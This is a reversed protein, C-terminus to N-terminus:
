VQKLQSIERDKRDIRLMLIAKNYKENNLQQKLQYKEEEAQEIRQELVQIQEEKDAYPKINRLLYSFPADQGRWDVEQLPQSGDGNSITEDVPVTTSRLNSVTLNLDPSPSILDVLPVQNNAASAEGLIVIDNWQYM